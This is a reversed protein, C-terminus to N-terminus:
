MWTAPAYRYADGDTLIRGFGPFHIHSGAVLMKDASVMDHKPLYWLALGALGFVIM